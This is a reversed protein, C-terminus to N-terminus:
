VMELMRTVVLTATWQMRELQGCSFFIPLMIRYLMAILSTFVTTHPICLIPFYRIYLIYIQLYEVINGHLQGHGNKLEELATGVFVLDEAGQLGENSEELYQGM